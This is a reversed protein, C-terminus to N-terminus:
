TQECVSVKVTGRTPTEPTPLRVIHLDDIQSDDGWVGAQTLADLLCKWLNDLDKRGGDRRGDKRHTPQQAEVRVRLRGKLRPPQRHGQRVAAYVENRYALGQASIM